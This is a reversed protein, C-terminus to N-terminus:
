WALVVWRIVGNHWTGVMEYSSGAAPAFVGDVCDQGSFVWGDPVTLVTPVEGSSFTISYSVYIGAEPREATISLTAPRQLTYAASRTLHIAVDAGTVVNEPVAEAQVAASPSSSWGCVNQSARTDTIMSQDINVTGAPVQIVALWIDTVTSTRVPYQTHPELRKTISAGEPTTLDLRQVLVFSQAEESFPVAFVEQSDDYAIYGNIICSGSGVTVNGGDVGTATVQLSDGDGKIVGTAFFMSHLKAFFAADQAKDGRPFGNVDDIVYTSDFFGSKQAM